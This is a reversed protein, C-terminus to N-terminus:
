RGSGPKDGVGVVRGFAVVGRGPVAGAMDPFGRRRGLLPAHPAADCTGARGTVGEAFASARGTM